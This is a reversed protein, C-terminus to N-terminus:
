FRFTIGVTFFKANVTDLFSGALLDFEIPGDNPRWRVGLQTGTFGPARGFVELMLSIEEWGIKTEIQAGYFLANAFAATRIYSWGANLNIRTKDDLPISIPLIATALDLEGTGVNVSSFFELAVGVGKDEPVLNYKLVPGLLQDSGLTQGYWYHQFHLGFELRPLSALTCTPTANAYGGGGSGGDFATVWTELQCTGPDIVESDDVIHAGGAASAASTLLPATVLWLLVPLRLRPLTVRDLCEVTQPVSALM